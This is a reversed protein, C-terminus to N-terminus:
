DSDGQVDQDSRVVEPLNGSAAGDVAEAPIDDDIPVGIVPGNLRPQADVVQYSAAITELRKDLEEELEDDTWLELPKKSAGMESTQVTLKTVAELMKTRTASGPAADFYQKVLMSAFGGSGGFLSMVRELVESVHPVNEGGRSAGRTFLRAAEQEIRDLTKEERKVVKKQAETRRCEPCTTGRGQHTGGCVICVKYTM